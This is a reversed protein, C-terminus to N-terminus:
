YENNPRDEVQQYLMILRDNSDDNFIHNSSLSLVCCVIAGIAGAKNM